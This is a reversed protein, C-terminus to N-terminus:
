NIKKILNQAEEQEKILQTFSGKTFFNSLKILNELIITRIFCKEELGVTDLITSASLLTNINFKKLQEALINIFTTIQYYTIKSTQNFKQTNKIISNNLAEFILEQCREKTLKKNEDIAKIILSKYYNDGIKDPYILNEPTNPFVITKVDIRNRKPNRNDKGKLLKM